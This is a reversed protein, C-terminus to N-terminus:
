LLRSKQRCNKIESFLSICLTSHVDSSQITNPEVATSWALGAEHLGTARSAHPTLEASRSCWANILESTYIKYAINREQVNFNLIVTEKAFKAAVSAMSSFCTFALSFEVPVVVGLLVLRQSLRQEVMFLRSLPHTCVLDGL